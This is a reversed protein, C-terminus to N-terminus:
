RSATAEQTSEVDKLSFDITLPFVVQERRVMDYDISLSYENKSAATEEAHLM